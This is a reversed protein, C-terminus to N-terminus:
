LTKQVKIPPLVEQGQYYLRLIYLGSEVTSLDITNSGLANLTTTQVLKGQIDVIQIEVDGPSNTLELYYIGSSPNPYVHASVDEFHPLGSHSSTPQHFGQTLQNSGTAYTDTMVEGLTWSLNADSATQFSGASGIVENSLSQGQASFGSLVVTFLLFSKFKM